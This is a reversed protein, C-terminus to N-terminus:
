FLQKVPAAKKCLGDPKMPNNGVGSLLQGNARDLQYHIFVDGLRGGFNWKWLVASQTYTAPFTDVQNSKAGSRVVTGASENLTLERLGESLACTLTISQAQAPAAALALTAIAAATLLKKM